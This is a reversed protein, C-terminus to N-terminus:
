ALESWLSTCEPYNVCRRVIREVGDRQFKEGMPHFDFHGNECEARATFERDTHRGTHQERPFGSLPFRRWYAVRNARAVESDRTRDHAQERTEEFLHGHAGWFSKVRDREIRHRGLLYLGLLVVAGALYLNILALAGIVVGLLTGVILRPGLFPKTM